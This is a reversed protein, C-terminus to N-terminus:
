CKVLRQAYIHSQPRPRQQHHHHSFPYIQFHPRHSKLFSRSCLYGSHEDVIIVEHTFGGPSPQPLQQPDFSLTQGITTAPASTSSPHSPSRYKGAACHICHGRLTRNLLINSPVLPTPIKGTSICLSLIADSPHGLSHHLAEAQDARHRQEGTIHPLVPPLSTLLYSTPTNPPQYHTPNNLAAVRLATFNIPLLNNSNIAVNYLLFGTTSSKIISHTLPRTPDPCVHLMFECLTDWMKAHLMFESPHHPYNPCPICYKLHKTPLHPIRLSNSPM